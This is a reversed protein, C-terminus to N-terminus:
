GGDDFGIPLFIRSPSIKIIPIFSFIMGWFFPAINRSPKWEVISLLELETVTYRTQADSLKRSYFAIPLGRQQIVSGVQVTSADTYIEFPLTFDPYSLVVSRSMHEKIIRLNNECESSWSFKVKKKTLNTIPALLESRRPIFNKYYNLFGLLSRVQKVNTPPKFAQIAEIKKTQPKIGERSLVFGLFEAEYAFFKSKDLHIKLNNRVLRGLVEDLLKLHDLFTGKSIILIDDIYVVVEPIDIFISSIKEQYIDPSCSLGMPLRLYVYKGWPLVITCYRQSRKSLRIAWFGMNLDMTSCYTFGDMTRFIQQVNPLPFPLRRLHKNLQRFDSVFRIQNNKKPIGFSPAAWESENVRQIVGLKELRQCENKMLPIHVVPINFARGHFPKVKEDKLYLEVPSGPLTGLQGNFADQHTNLVDLFMRRQEKNLHAPIFQAVDVPTINYSAAIMSPSHSEWREEAQELLSDQVFLEDSISGRPQIPIAMEDWRLCPVDGSYDLQLKLAQILDRGLIMDPLKSSGGQALVVEHTITRHPSFQVLNFAVKASSTTKLAGGSMTDFSRCEKKAKNRIWRPLIEERVITRTCGTDVLARVVKKQKTSLDYLLSVVVEPRYDVSPSSIDTGSSLEEAMYLEDGYYAEDDDSVNDQTRSRDSSRSGKSDKSHSSGHSKVSHDSVSRQDNEDNDELHHAEDRSRRRMEYGRRNHDSQRRYTGGQSSRNNSGGNNRNHNDDNRNSRDRRDNNDSRRYESGNNNNSKRDVDRDRGRDNGNRNSNRNSNRRDSSRNNDRSSSNGRNDRNRNENRNRDRKEQSELEQYYSLIEGLREMRSNGSEILKRNWSPVSRTIIDCIEDERLRHNLPGPLQSLYRNLQRLRTAFARINMDSPKRASLILERLNRTELKSCYMETFGSMLSNYKTETDIIELPFLENQVMLFNEKATDALTLITNRYWSQWNWGKSNGLDILESKWILLAELEDVHHLVRFRKKIEQAEVGHESDGPVSILKFEISSKFCEKLVQNSLPKLTISPM